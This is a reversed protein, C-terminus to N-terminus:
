VVNPISHSGGLPLSINCDKQSLHSFYSFPPHPFVHGKETTWVLDHGMICPIEREPSKASDYDLISVRSVANLLM